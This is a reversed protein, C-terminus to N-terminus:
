SVERLNAPENHYAFSKQHEMAAVERQVAQVVATHVSMSLREVAEPQQCAHTRVAQSSNATPLHRM